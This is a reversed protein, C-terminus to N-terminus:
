KIKLSKILIKKDDFKEKISGKIQYKEHGKGAILIIDNEKAIQCAYEIAEKRDIIKLVKNLDNDNVGLEMQDIISKPDEFRPNDSTFIVKDSLIAAIKGMLPRKAKDRDGGCGIM